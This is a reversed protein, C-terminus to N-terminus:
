DEVVSLQAYWVTGCTLKFERFRVTFAPFASPPEVIMLLMINTLEGIKVIQIVTFLKDGGAM